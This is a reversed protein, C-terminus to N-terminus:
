DVSGTDITEADIEPTAVTDIGVEPGSVVPLDEADDKAPAADSTLTVTTQPGCTGNGTTGNNCILGSACDSTVQCRGGENQGCAASLLLVATLGLVCCPLGFIRRMTPQSVM